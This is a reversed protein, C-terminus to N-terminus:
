PPSLLSQASCFKARLRGECRGPAQHAPFQLGGMEGPLLSDRGWLSRTLPVPWSIHWYQVNTLSTRMTEQIVPFSCFVLLGLLHATILQPKQGVTM